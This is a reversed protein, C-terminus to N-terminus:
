VMLLQKYQQPAQPLAYFKGPNVRSPIVYDRAGEPSSVTFIPTQVELFGEDTFWNRTFHNMRARFEINNLVPRRRIDLFRHKFRNEESTNSEDRISFPLEKCTTHIHVTELAVEIEGTPMNANAQGQPREIVKGEIKVCYEPKLEPLTPVLESSM